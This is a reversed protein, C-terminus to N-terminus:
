RLDSAPSPPRCSNSTQISSSPLSRLEFRPAETVFDPIVIRNWGHRNGVTNRGSSHSFPSEQGTVGICTLSGIPSPRDQGM